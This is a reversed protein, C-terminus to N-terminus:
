RVLLWWGVLLLGLIAAGIYLIILLGAPGSKTVVDKTDAKGDRDFETSQKAM